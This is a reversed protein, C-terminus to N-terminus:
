PMDGPPTELQYYLRPIPPPPPPPTPPPYENYPAWTSFVGPPPPARPYYSSPLPPAAGVYDNRRAASPLPPPPPQRSYSSKLARRLKKISDKRISSTFNAIDLQEELDVTRDEVVELREHYMDCHSNAIALETKLTKYRRQFQEVIEKLYKNDEELNAIRITITTSPVVEDCLKERCLPCKNRNGGEESGPNKALSDLICATCFEHGCVTMARAVGLKGFCIPCKSPSLYTESQDTIENDSNLCPEM